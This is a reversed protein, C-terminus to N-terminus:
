QSYNSCSIRLKYFRRWFISVFSMLEVLRKMMIQGVSNLSRISRATAVEFNEAWWGRPIFHITGSCTSAGKAWSLMLVYMPVGDLEKVLWMWANKKQWYFARLHILRKSQKVMLYIREGWNSFQIFRIDHELAWDRHTWELRQTQTRLSGVWLCKVFTGKTVYAAETQQEFVDCVVALSFGPRALTFLMRSILPFFKLWMCWHFITSTSLVVSDASFSHTLALSRVFRVSSFQARKPVHIFAFCCLWPVRIFLLICLPKSYFM